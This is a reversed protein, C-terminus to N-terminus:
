FVRSLKGSKKDLWHLIVPYVLQFSLGTFRFTNDYVSFFYMTCLLCWGSLFFRSSPPLLWCFFLPFAALFVGMIFIGTWGAYSYARSYITSVNFPGPIRSDNYFALRFYLTTRKSIFDPLIEANILSILRRVTLPGGPDLNINQQLNALPSSVYVYTWFYEKPVVSERFSKTAGGTAMFNENTYAKGAIRSVRLSGLVGFVYFLAMASVAILALQRTSIEPRFTLYLLLSGTLNFFLMARSYILIAVFLNIVYLVLILRSRKSLWVHFLYLTYYSSFTVLLVHFTPIGFKKYDYPVGLLIKLFPIGGEYIFEAIWGIFIVATIFVAPRELSPISAFQVQKIPPWYRAIALFVLFTVILFVVLGTRLAPYLESWGLLYTAMAIAFATVYCGYPNPKLNFAM